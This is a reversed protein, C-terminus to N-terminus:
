GCDPAHGNRGLMVLTTYSRLEKNRVIQSISVTVTIEIILSAPCRKMSGSTIQIEKDTFQSRTSQRHNQSSWNVVCYTTLMTIIWRWKDVQSPRPDGLVCVEPYTSSPTELFSLQPPLIQRLCHSGKPHHRPRSLFLFFGAFCWCEGEAERSCLHYLWGGWVGIEPRGVM